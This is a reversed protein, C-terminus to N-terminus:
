EAEDQKKPLTEMVGRVYSQGVERYLEKIEQRTAELEETLEKIRTETTQKVIRLETELEINRERYKAAEQAQKIAEDREETLRTLTIQLQAVQMQLRRERETAVLAEVEAAELAPPTGRNGLDLEHHIQDYTAGRKKQEAIYALVEM